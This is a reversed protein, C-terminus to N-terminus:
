IREDEGVLACSWSKVRWKRHLSQWRAIRAPSSRVCLAPDGGRLTLRLHHTRCEEPASLLCAVVILEM